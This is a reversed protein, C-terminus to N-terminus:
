DRTERQALWSTGARTSRLAQLLRGLIVGLAPSPPTGVRFVILVVVVIAGLHVGITVHIDFLCLTSIRITAICTQRMENGQESVCVEDVLM